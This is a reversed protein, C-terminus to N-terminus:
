IGAQLDSTYLLFQQVQSIARLSIFFVLQQILLYYKLINNLKLLSDRLTVHEKLYRYSDKLNLLKDNAKSLAYLIKIRQETNVDIKNKELARNLYNLALNYRNNNSENGYGKIVTFCM